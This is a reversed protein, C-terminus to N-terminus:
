PGQPAAPPTRQHAPLARLAAREAALTQVLRWRAHCHPCQEIDLSAVRRMFPARPRDACPCPSGFKEGRGRRYRPATRGAEVREGHAMRRDEVALLCRWRDSTADAQDSLDDARCLLERVPHRVAPRGPLRRDFAPVLPMVGVVICGARLAGRAEAALQEPHRGLGAREDLRGEPATSTSTRSPM